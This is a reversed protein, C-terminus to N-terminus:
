GTMISELSTQMLVCGSGSSVFSDLECPCVIVLWCSISAFILLIARKRLFGISNSSLLAALRLIGMMSLCVLSVDTRSGRCMGKLIFIDPVERLFSADVIILLIASATRGGM